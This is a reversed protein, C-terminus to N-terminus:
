ASTSDESGAGDTGNQQLATLLAAEAGDIRNLVEAAQEETLEESGQKAFHVHRQEQKGVGNLQVADGEEPEVAVLIADGNAHAPDVDGDGQVELRADDGEEPVLVGDDDEVIPDNVAESQVSGQSSGPNEEPKEKKQKPKAIELVSSAVSQVKDGGESLQTGNVSGEKKFFCPLLTQLVNLFLEWVKKAIARLQGTCTGIISGESFVTRSNSLAVYM